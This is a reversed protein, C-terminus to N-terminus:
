LRKKSDGSLLRDVIEESVMGPDSNVSNPVVQEENPNAPAASAPDINMPALIIRVTENSLVKAAYTIDATLVNM